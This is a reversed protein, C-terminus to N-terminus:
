AYTLHNKHFQKTIFCLKGQTGNQTTGRQQICTAIDTLQINNDTVELRIMRVEFIERFFGNSVVILNKIIGFAARRHVSITVIGYPEIFLRIMCGTTVHGRPRTGHDSTVTKRLGFVQIQRSIQAIDRKVFGQFITFAFSRSNRSNRLATIPVGQIGHTAKDTLAVLGIPCVRHVVGRSHNLSVQFEMRAGIALVIHVVTHLDLFRIFKAIVLEEILPVVINFAPVQSRVRRHINRLITIGLIEHVVIVVIITTIRRKIRNIRNGLLPNGLLRTIRRNLRM